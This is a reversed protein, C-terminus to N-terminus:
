YSGGGKADTQMPPRGRGGLGGDWQEPSTWQGRGWSSVESSEKLENSIFASNLKVEIGNLEM